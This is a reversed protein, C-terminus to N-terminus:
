EISFDSADFSEPKPAAKPVRRLPDYQFHRCHSDPMMVGKKICLVHSLDDTAKGIACYACAPPVSKSFLEQKM